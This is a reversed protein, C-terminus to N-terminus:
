TEGGPWSWSHEQRLVRWGEPAEAATQLWAVLEPLAVSRLLAKARQKESAPVLGLAVRVSEPGAEWCAHPAIPDWHVWLWADASPRGGLTITTPLPAGLSVLQSRVAPVRMPWAYGKPPRQKRQPTERLM